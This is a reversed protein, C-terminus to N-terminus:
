NGDFFGITIGKAGLYSFAYRIAANVRRRWARDPMNERWGISRCCLANPILEGHEREVHRRLLLLAGERLAAADHLKPANELSGLEQYMLEFSNCLNLLIKCCECGPNLVVRRTHAETAERIRM